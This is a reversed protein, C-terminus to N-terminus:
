STYYYLVQLLTPRQIVIAMLNYRKYFLFLGTVIKRNKGLLRTTYSSTDLGEKGQHM